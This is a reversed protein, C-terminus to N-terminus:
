DEGSVLEGYPANWITEFLDRMLKLADRNLPVGFATIGDPFYQYGSGDGGVPDFLAIGFPLPMDDKRVYKVAASSGYFGGLSAKFSARTGKGQDAVIIRYRRGKRLNALVVERFPRDDFKENPQMIWAEKQIESEIAVLGSRPIVAVASDGKWSPTVTWKGAELTELREGLQSQLDSNNTYTIVIDRGINFPLPPSGKALVATIQKNLAVAIGLEHFVNPKFGNLNVIVLKSLWIGEYIKRMGDSDEGADPALMATFNYNELTPALVRKYLGDGTRNFPMAVFAMRRWKM